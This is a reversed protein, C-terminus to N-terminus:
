AYHVLCFMEGLSEVVRVNNVVRNMSSNHLSLYKEKSDVVLGKRKGRDAICHKKIM